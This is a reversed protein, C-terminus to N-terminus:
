GGEVRCDYPLRARPTCAAAVVKWGDPFEALFVTDAIAAGGAADAAGAGTGAFRVQAKGGFRKSDAVGGVDPISEALVARACPQQASQELEGRTQPALLACAGAGEQSAVAAHFDAAVGAALDAGEGGCGSM